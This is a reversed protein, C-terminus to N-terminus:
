RNPNSFFGITSEIIRHSVEAAKGSDTQSELDDLNAKCFGCGLRNVHFEIYGNWDDSLTGLLYKGITTRKPCSPRQEEWAATLLATAPGDDDAPLSEEAVGAHVALRKLFRHKLLAIRTEDHGTHEAIQKNRMQAYFLLEFVILEDFRCDERLQSVAHHLAESLQGGRLAKSEQNRAYQSATLDDAVLRGDTAAEGIQTLAVNRSRGRSRIQDIIRRRLIGFLFTELSADGRFGDLNRLFGLLTDQVADEADAENSLQQKAFAILRGQYRAVLQSWGDQDGARILQELYKDADTRDPMNGNHSSWVDFHFSCAYEKL